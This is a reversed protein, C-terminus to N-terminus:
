AVMALGLWRGMGGAWRGGVRVEAGTKEVNLKVGHLQPQRARLAAILREAVKGVDPEPAAAAGPEGLPPAAPPDFRVLAVKGAQTAQKPDFVVSRVGHELGQGELLEALEAETAAAPLGWIRVMPRPRWEEPMDMVQWEEPVAEPGAGAPRPPPADSPPLGGGGQLGNHLQGAAEAGAHGGDGGAHAHQADLADQGDGDEEAQGQSHQAAAEEEGYDLEEDM